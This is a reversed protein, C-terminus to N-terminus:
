KVEMDSFGSCFSGFNKWLFKGPTQGSRIEVDSRWFWYMSLGWRGRMDM